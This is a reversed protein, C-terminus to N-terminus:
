VLCGSESSERLINPELELAKKFKVSAETKRGLAMLALGCGLWAAAFNPRHKVAKEFKEAADEFQQLEVLAVGWSCWIDANEPMEKVAKRFKEIAEEYQRMDLGREQRSYANLSILSIPTVV